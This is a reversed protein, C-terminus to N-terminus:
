GMKKSYLRLVTRDAERDVELKKIISFAVMTFGDPNASWPSAAATQFLLCGLGLSLLALAIKVKV